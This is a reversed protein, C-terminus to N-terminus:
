CNLAICKAILYDVSDDIDVSRMKPMIYAYTNNSYWSDSFIISKSLVYIAGNPVYLEKEAQRNAYGFAKENNIKGDCGVDKYWSIPNPQATLSIVSDAKKGIYLDVAGQVDDANRLPSTPQLILLADVNGGNNEILNIMYRYTDNVISNDSSLIKPRLGFSKAGYRLAENEIELSDTTIFIEEINNISKSTEVALRVLSSGNIDMLNKNLLGKSGGRAPIVTYIKKNIM